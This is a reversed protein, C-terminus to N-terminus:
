TGAGRMPLADTRSPGAVVGRGQMARLERLLAPMARITVIPGGTATSRVVGM